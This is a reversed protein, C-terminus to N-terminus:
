IHILRKKIGKVVAQTRDNVRLKSFINHIHAKATHLTINMAAAIEGNKKGKSLYNLVQIERKTMCNPSSIPIGSLNFHRIEFLFQKFVNRNISIELYCDKNELNVKNSDIITFKIKNDNINFFPM